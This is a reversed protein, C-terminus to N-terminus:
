LLLRISVRLVRFEGGTTENPKPNLGSADWNLLDALEVHAFGRLGPLERSGPSRFKFGM